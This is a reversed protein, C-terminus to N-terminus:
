PRYPKFREIYASPTMGMAKRFVRNFTITSTFGTDYAVASITLYRGSLLKKCAQSVRLDNLYAFYTKGTHKKFYSCFANPTMCAVSAVEDLSIDDMYHKATYTHVQNLRDVVEYNPTSLISSLPKWAQRSEIEMLNRVLELFHLFRGFGKGEGVQVISLSGRRVFQYPVELRRCRSQRVVLL